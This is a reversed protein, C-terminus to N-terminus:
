IPVLQALEKAARRADALKSASRLLPSSNWIKHAHWAFTNTRYKTPPPLLNARTARTARTPRNGKNPPCMIMGIPIRDGNGGYYSMGKWAEVAIQEVALRNLSPLGSEQLLEEVPKCDKRSSGLIYRACDNVATQVDQMDKCTPDEQKLRPKLVACAYGVQGVLLSRAVQRLQDQRLHLSLRRTAAALSRASSLINALHPLPSLRQDFTVGLVDVSSSPGVLVDGVHLPPQESSGIWLIQTKDNNLVLFHRNMYSSIAASISELSAKATATDKASVWAICDDAYGSSGITINNGGDSGAVGSGSIVDPLDVLLCLFLLPGLISGQPVGYKIKLFTSYQGNYAVQQSRGELYSAIWRNSGGRIGLGELKDLLTGHDLTDFAASLDYAAIGVVNGESKAKTWSGHAAIIAGVTNRRPRFGHQSNPLKKDLYNMLQKHVVRELVKSLAPLISVPRYSGATAAPKKKKHVPHVIALKFGDPVTSTRISVGILHAVPAALVPAGLRLVQVPIKDVGEAGTNKLAMIVAKVEVETPPRLVFDEEHEAPAAPDHSAATTPTIRERLKCIKDVYYRNVHNSLEEDGVVGDLEGPLSHSAGKGMTANALSWVKKPDFSGGASGIFTQNSDLKDRKLLRVAKNRWRRYLTTNGAAAASDRERMAMLTDQKLNLPTQRDKILSRRLPAVADLASSIERVIIEHIDNANESRFVKSLNAANLAMIFQSSSISKYNRRLSSKFGSKRQLSVPYHAAVPLHDTAAFPITSASALPLENEDLGFAYFHDLISCKRGDKFNGHSRFTFSSPGVFAYGLNRMKNIHAELMSHRYYSPDSSKAMDLNLDGLIAARRYNGAVLAAHDHFTALEEMENSSSTGWQRYIGCVIFPGSPLNLKIWLDVNSRYIMTPSSATNLDARVLLLLRYKNNTALPFYVAYNRMAFTLDSTPLEAETIVAVEPNTDALLNELELERHKSRSM